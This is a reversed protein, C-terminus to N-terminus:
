GRTPPVVLVETALQDIAQRLDCVCRPRRQVPPQSVADVGELAISYM